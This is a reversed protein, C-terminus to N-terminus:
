YCLTILSTPFYTYPQLIHWLIFFKVSTSAFFNFNLLTGSFGHVYKVTSKIVNSNTAPFFIIKTTHSLNNLIICKTAVVFLVDASLNTCNYFTPFQSLTTLIMEDEFLYDFPFFSNIIPIINVTRWQDYVFPNAQITLLLLTQLLCCSV